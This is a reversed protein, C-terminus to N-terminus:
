DSLLEVDTPGEEQLRSPRVGLMLSGFTDAIRQSTIGRDHPALTLGIVASSVGAQGGHGIGDEGRSRSRGPRMCGSLCREARV